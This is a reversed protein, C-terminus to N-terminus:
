EPPTGLGSRTLLYVSKTGDQLCSRNISVENEDPLVESTEEGANVLCSENASPMHEQVEKTGAHIHSVVFDKRDKRPFGVARSVENLTSCESSEVDGPLDYDFIDWREDLSCKVHFRKCQAVTVNM